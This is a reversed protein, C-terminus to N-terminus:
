LSTLINKFPSPHRRRRFSVSLTFTVCSAEIALACSLLSSSRENVQEGERDRDRSV